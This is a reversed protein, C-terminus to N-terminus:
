CNFGYVTMGQRVEMLGQKLIGAMTFERPHGHRDCGATENSVTHVVLDASGMARRVMVGGAHEGPVFLHSQQLVRSGGISQGMVVGEVDVM